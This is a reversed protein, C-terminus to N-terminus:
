GQEMRDLVGRLSGELGEARGAPRAVQGRSVAEGTEGTGELCGSLEPLLGQKDCRWAEARSPLKGGRPFASHGSFSSWGRRQAARDAGGGADEQSTGWLGALGRQGCHDCAPKARRQHCIGSSGM